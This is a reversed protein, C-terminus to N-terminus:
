YDELSAILEDVEIADVENLLEDTSATELWYTDIIEVLEERSESYEVYEEQLAVADDESPSPGADLSFWVVAAVLSLSGALGAQWWWTRSAAKRAEIGQRVKHPFSSSYLTNQPPQSAADAVRLTASLAELRGQCHACGGLHYELRMRAEKELTDELYDLLKEERCTKFPRTM